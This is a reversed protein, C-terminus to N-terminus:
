KDITLRIWMSSTGYLCSSRYTFESTFCCRSSCKISRCKTKAQGLIVEDVESRDIGTREVLASIVKEALFDATENILSGGLKGIATRVGDIIVVEKM